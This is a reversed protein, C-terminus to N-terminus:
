TLKQYIKNYILNDSYDFKKGKYPLEIKNFTGNIHCFVNYSPHVKDNSLYRSFNLIINDREKVFLDKGNFIPIYIIDWSTQQFLSNISGTDKGPQLEIWLVLGNIDTDKKVELVVTRSETQPIRKTFDLFEVVKYDTVINPLVDNRELMLRVNFPHGVFKFIDKFMKKSLKPIHMNEILKPISVGAIYTKCTFPIVKGEKKLLRKKADNHATIVGESSGISGIIESICVDFKKNAKYDLSLSHVLEMKNLYQKYTKNKLKRKAKNYTTKLVELGVSSKAGYDLGLLAWDMYEGTGIDLIRKNLAVKKLAQEYPKRRDIDTEMYAYSASDYVPYEGVSPWINIKSM